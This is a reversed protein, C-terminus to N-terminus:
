RKGRVVGAARLRAFLDERREAPLRALVASANQGGSSLRQLVAAFRDEARQFQGTRLNVLFAGPGRGDPGAGEARVVQAAPDWLHEYGLEHWRAVALAAAGLRGPYLDHEVVTEAILARIENQGPLEQPDPTNRWRALDRGDDVTPDDRDLPL